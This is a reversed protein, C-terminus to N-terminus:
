TLKKAFFSLPTGSRRYPITRQVTVSSEIAAGKDVPEAAEPGLADAHFVLQLNALTSGDNIELFGVAKSVRKNRVWGTIQVESGATGQEFLDRIRQRRPPRTTM